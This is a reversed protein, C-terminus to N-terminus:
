ADSSSVGGREGPACIGNSGLEGRRGHLAMFCHGCNEQAAVTVHHVKRTASSSDSASVPTKPCRNCHRSIRQAWGTTGFVATRTRENFKRKAPLSSLFSPEVPSRARFYLAVENNRVWLSRHSLTMWLQRYPSERSRFCRWKPQPPPRGCM